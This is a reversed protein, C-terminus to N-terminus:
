ERASRGCSPTSSRDLSDQEPQGSKKFIRDALERSDRENAEQLDKGLGKLLDFWSQLSNALDYELVDGLQAFDKKQFSDLAQGMARAMEKENQAWTMRDLFLGVDVVADMSVLSEILFQCSDILNVFATYHGEPGKQRLTQALEDTQEIIRPIETQWNKLVEFLLATPKESRIELKKIEEVRTQSLRAEDDEELAMGNIVFQCIVEGQNQFQAEFTKVLDKLDTCDFAIDRIQENTFITTRM